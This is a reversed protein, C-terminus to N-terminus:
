ETNTYHRFRLFFASTSEFEISCLRLLNIRSGFNHKFKPENLQRFDVRLRHLLKIELPDYINFTMNDTPLPFKSLKKRSHVYSNTVRIQIGCIVEFPITRLSTQLYGDVFNQICGSIIFYLWFYYFRFNKSTEVEDCLM